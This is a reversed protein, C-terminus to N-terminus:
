ELTLDVKWMRFIEEYSLIANGKTITKDVNDDDATETGTAATPTTVVSYSDFISEVYQRDLKTTHHAALLSM